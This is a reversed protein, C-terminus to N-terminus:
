GILGPIWWALGWALGAKETAALAAAFIVEAVEITAGLVDGTCGGIKEWALRWLVALALLAAAGPIPFFALAIVVFATGLVTRAGAGAEPAAIIGSEGRVYPLLWLAPLVASRALLAAAPLAALLVAPRIALYASTRLLLSLAVAAAGMTGVRPDKLIRLVDQRDRRSYFADACDALGDLHIAGPLLVCLAAIVVAAVLPPLLWQAGAAAAALLAGVLLAAPPFGWFMANPRATKWSDPLPIVTLFTLASVFARFPGGAPPAGARVRGAAHTPARRV